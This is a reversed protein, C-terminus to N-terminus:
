LAEEHALTKVTGRETSLTSMANNGPEALLPASSTTMGESCTPGPM